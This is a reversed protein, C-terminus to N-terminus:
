QLQGLTERGTTGNPGRLLIPTSAQRVGKLRMRGHEGKRNEPLHWDKCVFIFVVKGVIHWLFGQDGSTRQPHDTFRPFM